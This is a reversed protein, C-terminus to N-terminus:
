AFNWKKAYCEPGKMDQGARERDRKHARGELWVSSCPVGPGRTAEYRQCKVMNIGRVQLYGERRWRIITWM